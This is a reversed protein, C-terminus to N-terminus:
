LRVVSHLSFVLRFGFFNDHDWPHSFSRSTSRGGRANFRYLGGRLVRNIGKGFGQPDKVKGEKKCIEYYNSSYLDRSWEYVNGSMDFLGLENPDKLGVPKTEDHCNEDYWGVEELQDSGAYKYGRSLQGGRAAYEWEAETPLRYQGGSENMENLKQIFAQADNWSVSEVPRNDGKFYSPNNDDGMVAKWLAQTIPYKGIHFNSLEVEHIPQENEYAAEEKSGMLFTGEEVFIM